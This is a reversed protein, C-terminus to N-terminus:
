PVDDLRSFTSVSLAPIGFPAGKERRIAASGKRFPWRLDAKLFEGEGAKCEHCDTGYNTKKLIKARDSLNNEPNEFFVLNGTGLSLFGGGSGKAGSGAATGCSSASFSLMGV